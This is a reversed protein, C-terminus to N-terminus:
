FRYELRRAGLPDMLRPDELLLVVVRSGPSGEGYAEEYAWRVPGLDFRADRVLLAECLDGHGDHSLFVRLQVPDSEMWGGWVVAQIDHAGCGGGFSVRVSLEDGTVAAEEITLPDRPWWGPRTDFDVVVPRVGSLLRHLAGVAERLRAPLAESSGRVTSRGDGDEYTVVYHFQDCCETGFDRGDLGHIGADRFLGALYLVQDETLTLIVEGPEFGCLRECAVGELRGSSGDLRVAYAAGAIGGSVGLEIRVEGPELPGVPDGSGCASAGWVLVPLLLAGAAGFSRRGPIRARRM